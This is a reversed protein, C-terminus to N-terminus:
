FFILNELIRFFKVALFKKLRRPDRVIKSFYFIGSKGLFFAKYNKFDKSRKWKRFIEIQIIIPVSNDDSGQSTM